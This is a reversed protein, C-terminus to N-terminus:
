MSVMVNPDVEIILSSSDYEIIGDSANKKLQFYIEDLIDLSKINRNSVLEELKSIPIEQMNHKYLGTSNLLIRQDRDLKITKQTIQGSEELYQHESDTLAMGFKGRAELHLELTSYHLRFTLIDLDFKKNKLFNKEEDLVKKFFMQENEATSFPLSKLEHFLRVLTSSFIYSSCSTIVGFIHDDSNIVDYFDTGMNLGAAYKGYIKVGKIENFRRPSKKEYIEKVRHLEDNLSHYVETLERDITLLDSKLYQRETINSEFTKILNGLIKANTESQVEYIINSLELKLSKNSPNFIIVGECESLKRVVIENALDLAEASIMVLDQKVGESLEYTAMDLWIVGVNEQVNETFWDKLKNSNDLLIL